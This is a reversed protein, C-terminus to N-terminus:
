EPSSVNKKEASRSAPEELLDEVLAGALLGVGFGVENARTGPSRDVVSGAAPHAALDCLLRAGAYLVCSMLLASVLFSQLLSSSRDYPCRANLSMACTYRGDCIM